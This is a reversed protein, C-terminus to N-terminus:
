YIVYKRSVAIGNGRRLAGRLGKMLRHDGPIEGKTKSNRNSRGGYDSCFSGRVRFDYSPALIFRVQSILLYVVSASREEPEYTM